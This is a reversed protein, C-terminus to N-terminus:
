RATRASKFSSRPRCRRSLRTPGRPTVARTRTTNSALGSTCGPGLVIDYNFEFQNETASQQPKGTLRELAVTRPNIEAAVWGFNVTDLDRGEFTGKYSMGFHYTKRLL